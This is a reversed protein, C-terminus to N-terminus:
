AVVTAAVWQKGWRGVHAAARYGRAHVCHLVRKWEQRRVSSENEAGSQEESEHGGQEESCRLEVGDHRDGDVAVV